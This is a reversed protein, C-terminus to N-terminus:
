QNMPTAAAFGRALRDLDDCRSVAAKGSPKLSVTVAAHLSKRDGRTPYSVGGSPRTGSLCPRDFFHCLGAGAIAKFIEADALHDAVGRRAGDRDAIDRNVGAQEARPERHLRRVREGFRDAIRARRDVIQEYEVDHE